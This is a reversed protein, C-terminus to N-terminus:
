YEKAIHIYEAIQIGSGKKHFLFLIEKNELGLIMSLPLLLLIFVSALPLTGLCHFPPHQWSRPNRKQFHPLFLATPTQQSDVMDLEWIYPFPDWISTLYLDRVQM